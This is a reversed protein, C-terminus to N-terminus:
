SDGVKQSPPPAHRIIRLIDEGFKFLCRPGLGPIGALELLSAPRKDDIIRFASEPLVEWPLMGLRRATETRWVLLQEVVPSQPAGGSIMDKGMGALAEIV